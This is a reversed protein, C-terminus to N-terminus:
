RVPQRESELNSQFIATEANGNPTFNLLFVESGDLFEMLLQFEVIVKDHHVFHFGEDVAIFTVQPDFRGQLLWLVIPFNTEANLSSLAAVRSLSPSNGQALGSEEWLALISLVFIKM